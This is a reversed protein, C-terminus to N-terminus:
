ELEIPLPVCEDTSGTSTTILFRMGYATKLAKDILLWGKISIGHPADAKPMHFDDATLEYVDQNAAVAKFALKRLSTLSYQNYTSSDPDWAKVKLGHKNDNHSDKYLWGTVYVRELFKLDDAFVFFKTPGDSANTKEFYELTKCDLAPNHHLCEITSSHNNLATLTYRLRLPNPLSSHARRYVDIRPTKFPIDACITHNDSIDPGASEFHAETMRWNIDYNYFGRRQGLYVRDIKVWDSGNFYHVEIQQRLSCTHSVCVCVCVCLSCRLIVCLVGLLVCM